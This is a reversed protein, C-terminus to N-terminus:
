NSLQVEEVSYGIILRINDRKYYYGCVPTIIVIFESCNEYISMLAIEQLKDMYPKQLDAVQIDYFVNGRPPRAVISQYLDQLLLSQYFFLATIRRWFDLVFALRM